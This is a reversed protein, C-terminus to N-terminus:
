PKVAAAKRQRFERQKLRSYTRRDTDWLGLGDADFIQWGLGDIREVRRGDNDACIAYCDPESLVKLAELTKDFPVRSRYAIARDNADVVGKEDAMAVLTIWVLLVSKDKLWLSTNLLNALPNKYM